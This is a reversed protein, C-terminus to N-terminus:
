LVHSQKVVLRLSCESERGVLSRILACIFTIVFAISHISCNYDPLGNEHVM